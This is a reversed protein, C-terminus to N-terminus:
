TDRVKRKPRHTKGQVGIEPLILQRSYRRISMNDLKDTVEPMPISDTHETYVHPMEEVCGNSDM